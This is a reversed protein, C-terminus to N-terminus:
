NSRACPPCCARPRTASARLCASAQGVPEILARRVALVHRVSPSDGIVQEFDLGLTALVPEAVPKVQKEVYHERDLPHQVNDLPEPGATTIVYSISGARAAADVQAGRRRAAADDGHVGRRGQAPEQSLRACRGARRRAGAARHRRSVRRGASRHVPASVARAAGAQRACDLRSARSGHRRVRRRRADHRSAPRRLAQERRAHQAAGAAPVVQLYLKEFKLELPQCAGASARHLARAGREAGGGAGARARAAQEPDDCAPTFSCATPTATCCRSAARKSGAAEVVAADRKGTGTISNALAPNYFRCAPTGLVGYFSNM